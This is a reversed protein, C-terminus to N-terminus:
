AVARKFGRRLTRWIRDVVMWPVAHNSFDALPVVVMWRTEPRPDLLLACATLAASALYLAPYVRGTGRFANRISVPSSGMNYAVVFTALILLASAPVTPLGPM